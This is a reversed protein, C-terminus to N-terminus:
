AAPTARHASRRDILRLDMRISRRKALTTLRRIGPFRSATRRPLGGGDFILATTGDNLDEIGTGLDAINGLAVFGGTLTVSGAFGSYSSASGSLNLVGTGNGSSDLM